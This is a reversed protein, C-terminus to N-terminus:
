LFRSSPVLGPSGIYERRGAPWTGAVGSRFAEMVSDPAPPTQGDGEDAYPETGALEAAIEEVPSADPETEVVEGDVMWFASGWPERM